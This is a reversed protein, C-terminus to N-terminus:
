AMLELIHRTFGDRGKMGERQEKERGGRERGGAESFAELNVQVSALKIGQAYLSRQIESLNAELLRKVGENYATIQASLGDEAKIVEVKMGGLVEPRLHVEIRSAGKDEMVRVREVVEQVVEQILSPATGVGYARNSPSSVEGRLPSFSAWPGAMLARQGSPSEIWPKADDAFPRREPSVPAFFPRQADFALPGKLSENTRGQAEPVSPPLPAIQGLSPLADKGPSAEPRSVRLPLGQGDSRGQAPSFVAMGGASPSALAGQVEYSPDAGGSPAQSRVLLVRFEQLYALVKRVYGVTEKFPPIGAYREVNGPGANYAALALLPNGFRDLMERLYRIGAELNEEPDFPDKVGLAQATSPMLQMLGMAGKPSCAKPDFNSEARIVALVLELPVGYAESLEKAKELYPIEGRSQGKPDTGSLIQTLLAQFGPGKTEGKTQSLLAGLLQDLNVQPM